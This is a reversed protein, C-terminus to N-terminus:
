RPGPRANRFWEKVQKVEEPSYLRVRLKGIKVRIPSPFVIEGRKARQEARRVRSPDRKVVRCLEALTLYNEFGEPKWRSSDDKGGWVPVPEGERQKTKAKTALSM